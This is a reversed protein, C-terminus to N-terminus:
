KALGVLYDLHTLKRRKEERRYDRYSKIKVKPTKRVNKPIPPFNHKKKANQRNITKKLEQVQKPTLIVGHKHCQTNISSRDVGYKDALMKESWEGTARLALMEQLLADNKQFIRSYNKQRPKEYMSGDDRVITRQM